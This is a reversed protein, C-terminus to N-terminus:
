EEYYKAERTINSMSFDKKITQIVHERYHLCNGFGLASVSNNMLIDISASQPAIGGFLIMPKKVFDRIDLLRRDFTGAVGENVHDVIMVESVNDSNIVRMLNDLKIMPSKLNKTYSFLTLEENFVSIPLCAIVAQSGIHSSINSLEMLDNHLLSDLVIRDAGLHIAKLADAECLIGGSYIIPTSINRDKVAVLTQEDIGLSNISRDIVQILIEDAGWRDLNEVVCEVSGIPLYNRYGFSQVVKGEKVTVCAIIRKKQM